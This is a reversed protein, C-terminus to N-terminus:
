QAGRQGPDLQGLRHGGEQARRRVQTQRGLGPPFGAEDQATQLRKGDLRSSVAGARPAKGPGAGNPRMSALDSASPPTSRRRSGTGRKRAPPCRPPPSPPPAGTTPPPTTPTTVPSTVAM